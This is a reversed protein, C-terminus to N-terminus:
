ASRAGRDALAACIDAVREAADPKGLERAKRAIDLLRARDLSQLMTALRQPTLEGQPMLIAAGAQALARANRTQHDDIAFPFPVLIAPAGVAALEALTTAGARCVVLDAAALEAAVDDIFASARANVGAERYRARVADIHQEGAQHVVEPRETAPMLAIAAPLAENLAQAGQSGGLVLVRLTGTRQAFRQSPPPVAKFAARIPNGTVIAKRQPPFTAEFSALVRDALHALWRTATGPISNQEHIALPRNLASAMLAGPFSVYGGMGLVV